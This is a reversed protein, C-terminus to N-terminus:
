RKFCEKCGWVALYEGYLCPLVRRMARGLTLVVEHRKGTSEPLLHACHPVLVPFSSHIHPPFVQFENYV